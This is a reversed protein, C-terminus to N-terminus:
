HLCSGPWTNMIHGKSIVRKNTVMEIDLDYQHGMDSNGTSLSLIMHCVVARESKATLGASRYLPGNTPGYLSAKIAMVQETFLCAM